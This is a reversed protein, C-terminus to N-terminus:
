EEGLDRLGQRVARRGADTEYLDKRVTSPLQDGSKREYFRGDSPNYEYKKDQYKGPNKIQVHLTGKRKGPDLNELDIRYQYQKVKTSYITRSGFTKAGKAGFLKSDKGSKKNDVGGSGKCPQAKGARGAGNGGKPDVGGNPEPKGPVKPGGQRKDSDKQSFVEKWDVDETVFKGTVAGCAPKCGQAMLIAIPLLGLVVVLRILRRVVSQLKM